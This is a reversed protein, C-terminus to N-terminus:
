GHHQLRLGAFQRVLAIDAAHQDAEGILGRQAFGPLLQVVVYAAMTGTQPEVARQDLRHARAAATSRPMRPSAPASRRAIARTTASSPACIRAFGRIASISM